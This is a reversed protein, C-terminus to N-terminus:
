MSCWKYGQGNYTIMKNCHTNITEGSDVEDFPMEGVIVRKEETVVNKLEEVEVLKKGVEVLIKGVAEVVNLEEVVVTNGM